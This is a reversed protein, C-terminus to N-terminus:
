DYEYRLAVPTDPLGDAPDDVMPLEVATLNGILDYEYSTTRGLDDYGTSTFTEDDL